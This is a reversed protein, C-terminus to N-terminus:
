TAPGSLIISEGIKNRTEKATRNRLPISLSRRMDVVRFCDDISIMLTSSFEGPRTVCAHSRQRLDTKGVSGGYSQVGVEEEQRAEVPESVMRAALSDSAVANSGAAGLAGADVKCAASTVLQTAAGERAAIGFGEFLTHPPQLTLSALKLM